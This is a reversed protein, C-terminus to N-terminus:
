GLKEFVYGKEVFYELMRPLAYALRPFAKESDHFVIISGPKVNKTVHELCNEKSLKEDFDGSLITWMIVKASPEHMAEKLKRFQSSKIRGYPPRFLSSHIHSAAEKIDALYIEDNTYWGNLHHQTHNGTVHGEDLIRNYLAPFAKVNKGICFFSARANYKKLQDLVFPTAMPHPGDDFSLYIVKKSTRVKWTYSSYFRMLWGPTRVFYPNALWRFWWPNKNWSEKHIEEM